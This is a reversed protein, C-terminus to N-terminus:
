NGHTSEKRRQKGFALSLGVGLWEFIFAEREYTSVISTEGVERVPEGDAYCPFWCVEVRPFIHGFVAYGYFLLIGDHSRKFGRYEPDIYYM